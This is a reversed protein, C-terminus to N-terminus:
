TGGGSNLRVEACAHMVAAFDRDFSVMYRHQRLVKHLSRSCHLDGPTLICRPQPSWWLISEGPNYWPFIGLAYALLLREPTLDGGVALLGDPEALQPSPFRLEAGLRFVPM